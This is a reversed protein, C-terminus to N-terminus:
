FNKTERRSRAEWGGTYLDPTARRSAKTAGRTEFCVRGILVICEIWINFSLAGLICIMISLRLIFFILHLIVHTTCRSTPKCIMCSKKLHLFTMLFDVLLLHLTLRLLLLILIQMSSSSCWIWNQEWLQLMRKRRIIFGLLIFFFLFSSCNRISIIIATLTQFMFLPCTWALM